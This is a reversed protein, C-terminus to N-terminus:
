YLRGSAAHEDAWAQALNDSDEKTSANLFEQSWAAAEDEQEQLNLEGNGVQKMFRMFQVCIVSIFM